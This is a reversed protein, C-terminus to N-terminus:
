IQCATGYGAQIATHINGVRVCDGIYRTRAAGSLAECDEPRSVCGTALVIADCELLQERGSRDTYRVGEPGFATYRVGTLGSFGELAEYADQLMSVYHAHAADSALSSQRTMVTVRHGNEALYMGTEVGTESGGIVAIRKPLEKEHGFVDVAQVVNEGDAGPVDPRVFRPGIAVLVEDFAEAELMARDARTNLRFSVGAKTCQGILWRLFDWIPWKFSAFESHRLQGGCEAEQEYLIVTHGRKACTLAAYLGAPGAGVIGVKKKREVPAIMRDLKDELGLQPNVSCFSRMRSSNNPVHCKNCRICPTVDEGRDEYLKQGYEPDCIWTRAMCIVDAENNALISECFAPDHLGATAGLRLKGGRAMVDRKVAATVDRNPWPSQRTSTFGTPHQPDQNGNRISLLDIKGEALRALEVTDDITLGGDEVGSVLCELPFDQGLTQKLADFLDLLFRARNATSGGYEDSRQNCIPSWLQGGPNNRYANHVSLMEFGLGKLIAASQCSTDIYEQMQARTLTNAYSGAGPQPGPPEGEGPGGGPPMGPGGAGPPGGPGVTGGSGADFSHIGPVSQGTYYAIPSTMAIGGYWRIADIMQCLYNHTSSNNADMISFHAPGCSGAQNLGVDSATGGELHNVFVASAGNRARNALLTMWKETPYPETGQIFHPTAATATMRNRLLVGGVQIPSLLHEYRTKM